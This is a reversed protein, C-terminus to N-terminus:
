TVKSTHVYLHWMFNWSIRKLLKSTTTRVLSYNVSPCVYMAMGYYTGNKKLRAYLFILDIDIKCLYMEM